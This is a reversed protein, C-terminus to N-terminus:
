GYKQKIEKLTDQRWKTTESWNSGSLNHITMSDVDAKSLDTNEDFFASKLDVEILRANEFVAGDIRARILRVTDLNADHLKAKSFHANDLVSDKIVAGNLNAGRLNAGRLHTNRFQAGELHANELIAYNLKSRVFKAGQLYAGTLNADELDMNTFNLTKLKKAEDDDSLITLDKGKLSLKSKIAQKIEDIGLRGRRGYKKEIEEEMNEVSKEKKEDSETETESHGLSIVQDIINKLKPKKIDSLINQKRSKITLISKATKEDIM